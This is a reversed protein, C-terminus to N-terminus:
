LVEYYDGSIAVPVATYDLNVITVDLNAALQTLEALTKCVGYKEVVFWVEFREIILEKGDKYISGSSLNYM